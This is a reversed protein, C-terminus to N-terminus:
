PPARFECWITLQLNLRHSFDPHLHLLSPWLRGSPQCCPLHPLVAPAAARCTRICNSMYFHNPTQRRLRICAFAVGATMSLIRM